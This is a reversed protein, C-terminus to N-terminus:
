PTPVTSPIRPRDLAHHLHARTLVRYAGVKTKNIVDNFEVSSLLKCETVAEFLAGEGLDGHEDGKVWGESAAASSRSLSEVVNTTSVTNGGIVENSRRTNSTLTSSTTGALLINTPRSTTSQSTASRQLSHGSTAILNEPVRNGGDHLSERASESGTGLSLDPAGLLVALNSILSLPAPHCSHHLYPSFLTLIRLHPHSVYGPLTTPITSM